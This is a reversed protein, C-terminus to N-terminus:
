PQSNDEQMENIESDEQELEKREREIVSRTSYIDVKTKTVLALNGDPTCDIRPHWSGVDVEVHRVVCEVIYGELTYKHM